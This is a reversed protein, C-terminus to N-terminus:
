RSRFQFDATHFVPTSASGEFLDLRLRKCSGVYSAPAKWDLQYNGDGLNQLDSSEGTEQELADTTRGTSCDLEIASVQASALTTVPVGAADALRWKLPIAQGAKVVNLIPDGSPDRNEVPPRFGAFAYTVLFSGSLPGIRMSHQGVADRTVAFAVEGSADPSLTVSTTGERDGDVTLVAEYTGTLDGINKVRASVTV